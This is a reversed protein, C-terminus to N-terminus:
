KTGFGIEPSGLYRHSQIQDSGYILYLGVQLYSRQNQNQNQVCRLSGNCVANAVTNSVANCV